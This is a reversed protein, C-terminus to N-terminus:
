SAAYRAAAKYTSRRTSRRAPWTCRRATPFTGGSRRVIQEPSWKLDLRDQVAQRLEPSAAIKSIKPRSRRAQARAQAAHPRYDGSVPHANRRLERSITSPERDLEVAIQRVSAQERRRDAIYLREEENLFRGRVSPSPGATIPPAAKERGTPNRGNRWRRGTRVNIGVVRCAEATGVGQGVLALYAERERTLRRRGQVVSRDRIEFDM